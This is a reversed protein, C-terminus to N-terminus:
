VFFGRYKQRMKEEQQALEYNFIRVKDSVTEIMAEDRYVRKVFLPMMPCYSIFDCWEREAIWLGSQCQAMHEYPVVDDILVKLHLHQLKSKIEVTGNADVLGDPSYGVHKITMGQDIYSTILGCTNVESDTEFEYSARALEEHENGREMHENKCNDTIRGTLREALLKNMYTKWSESYAAKKNRPRTLLLHINSATVLGLRENFWEETGQCNESIKIPM